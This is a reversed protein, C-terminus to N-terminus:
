ATAARFIRKVQPRALYALMWVAAGIVIVHCIVMPVLPFMDYGAFTFGSVITCAIGVSISAISVIRAWERLQLVGIALAGAVGALVLLSFGGAVGMGAISVSVPDGSDGGTLALVAVFIFASSGLALVVAAVLNAVAIITVGTPRKM